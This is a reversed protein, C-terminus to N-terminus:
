TLSIIVCNSQVVRYFDVASVINGRSINWIM